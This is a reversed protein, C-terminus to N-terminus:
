AALSLQATQLEAVMAAKDDPILDWRIQSPQGNHKGFWGLSDMADTAAAFSDAVKNTYGAWIAGSTDATLGYHEAVVRMAAQRGIGGVTHGPGEIPTRTFDHTTNETM